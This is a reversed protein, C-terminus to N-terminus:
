NLFNLTLLSVGRVDTCLVLYELRVYVGVSERKLILFQNKLGNLLEQINEYRSIGEPTKDDYLDKLLGTHSAIHQGLDFANKRFLESGFSLIM